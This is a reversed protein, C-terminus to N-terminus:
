AFMLPNQGVRTLTCSAASSPKVPTTSSPHTNVFLFAHERADHADHACGDLSAMPARWGGGGVGTNTAAARARREASALVSALARAQLEAFADLAVAARAAGWSAGGM